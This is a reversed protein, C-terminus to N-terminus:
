PMILCLDIENYSLDIEQLSRANAFQKKTVVGDIELDNNNLYLENM